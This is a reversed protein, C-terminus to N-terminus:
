NLFGKCGTSGCLCPIRDDSDWEREFKYDYTLEEDREIDRLAYIVIRKSGDVKIIKATCNPTCSHNIFRAIGGRKTADIVTNEDIRFLYSSGIGSKLYRRERMDAVQQRVKEGVYEIIMDNATINEEAYLGWNHIASRAFRVPKKRKKLQNFRLVDGDGNATPLAQKQANIDAILRRNNVRTSRSTSKSITKAAAIRAAEAAAAQPDAKANAEREERAKQVKIRHPLYKSKEAELIRKRGETRAAGTTNPVYYGPISIADQTTGTELGNLAKIEKQKWGWAALNQIISESQDLLIERLFRLDEDDKVLHQWGDLDLVIAEDDEVTARPKDKSFGWEIETKPEDIPEANWTEDVSLDDGELHKHSVHETFQDTPQDQTPLKDGDEALDDGIAVPTELDKTADEHGATESDIGFLEDEQRQRKRAEEDETLRKRKGSTPSVQLEHSLDSIENTADLDDVDQASREESGQSSGLDDSQYGGDREFESSTSSARSPPRSEREDVDRTAPTRQEDDSDEDDHLQQLRHYLPRVEKKRLPQRRREDLFAAGAHDLGHAKRIRPLALVNLGSSRLPDRGSSMEGRSGPTSDIQFVSRKTGEPDSIGLRERKSAHKSPELYDYLAPAAIRSKVDELLKDRLDRIIISLVERCPDLDIARQKKEEEIDLDAEKRTRDKEAKNRQETRLREPSPSREYNPNGYPQSEMNMIYTFLPQMHCLRYCRETEEEGRRSNEFIIYYGTKDCRIYKYSFLRLRKRLHPVTTSLVPVYCHAIFIYPDRKIQSLIPAEEVLSQVVPSRVGARPGEPIVVGPRLSSRGSPGKPATPPPESKKIQVDPRPETAPPLTNKSALRQSEVAKAAMRDSVVGDRDLEVRIRRTGIRQEKKCEFYARRAASSASAPGNGRASTSDKYKISCIGLFRGTIPDTRNKIEAVDGFSAFLASIPAIPTLPDFGTVVVQIPPGPGISTAVDYSWPKLNYPAPRYKTKQKCGSGRTYNAIARRPDPPADAQGNNVIDVYELKKRKEKSSTRKDLDPDYVVKCGRVRLELHRTQSQPTPPTHIPTISSKTIEPNPRSSTGPSGGGAIKSQSPSTLKCPPSSEANTLPTLTDIQSPVPNATPPPPLGSQDEVSKAEASITLELENPVSPTRAGEEHTDTKLPTEVTTPTSPALSVPCDPIRESIQDGEVHLKRREQATKFRKQQLVSPATPFFDAFGASARSM